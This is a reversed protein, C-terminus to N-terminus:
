IRRTRDHAGTCAHVVRARSRVGPVAGLSSSSTAAPKAPSTVIIVTRASDGTFSAKWTAANKKLTLRVANGSPSPEDKTIEWGGTKLAARVEAVVVERGRPVRYTAIRGDSGKTPAPAEADAPFPFADPAAPARRAPSPADIQDREYPPAAEVVSVISGVVLVMGLLKRRM